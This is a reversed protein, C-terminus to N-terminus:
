KWCPLILPLTMLGSVSKGGCNWVMLRRRMIGSMSITDFYLSRINYGNAGNHADQIMVQDLQGSLKKMDFLTM